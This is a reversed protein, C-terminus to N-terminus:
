YIEKEIDEGLIDLVVSHIEVDFWQRFTGLNRSKPWTSRDRCWADLEMEFLDRHMVEIYGTVEEEHDYEPLLISVCDSQIEKLTLEPYGDPVGTLWKLFPKKPKIIAISRNVSYAGPLRQYDSPPYISLIHRRRKQWHYRLERNISKLNCDEPDYDRGDRRAWLVMDEHEEHEPDGLIELMDYYGTVGGCDEPPSARKGALCVPYLGDPELRHMEEVVIEHEWEDGFDYVYTIRQGESHIVDSLRYRRAQKMDPEYEDDPKGYPVGDITFEYLHYDDWEMVAQLILHLRHLTRDSTVQFRRWIPPDIDVLSVRMQYVTVPGSRKQRAM